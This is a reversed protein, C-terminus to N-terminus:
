SRQIFNNLNEQTDIDIAARELPVAIVENNELIKKAGVDGQLANLQSFFHRPFIAPVGVRGAYTACVIHGSTQGLLSDQYSKILSDVDKKTIAVQDCLLILVASVNKPLSSVGCAISSGLGAQWDSNVVFKAQQVLPSLREHECGLVVTVDSASEALQLARELMTQGDIKALQKPEVGFRRSAGAALILTHLSM